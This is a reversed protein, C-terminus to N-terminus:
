NAAIQVALAHFHKLVSVLRSIRLDSSGISALTGNDTLRLAHSEGEKLDGRTIYEEIHIITDRIPAMEAEYSQIMRRVERPIQMAAQDASVANLANFARRLTILCLELHDVARISHTVREFGGPQNSRESFDRVVEYEEIALDVLRVLNIHQRRAGTDKPGGGMLSLRLAFPDTNRGLSDLPEM